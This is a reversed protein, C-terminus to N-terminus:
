GDDIKSHNDAIHHPLLAHQDYQLRVVSNICTMFLLSGHMNPLCELNRYHYAQLKGKVHPNGQLLAEEFAQFLRQEPSEFAPM